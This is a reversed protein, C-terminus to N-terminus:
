TYIFLPMGHNVFSVTAVNEETSKKEEMATPPGSSLHTDLSHSISVNNDMVEPSISWERRKRRSALDIDM